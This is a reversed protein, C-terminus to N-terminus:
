GFVIALVAVIGVIAVGGIVSMLLTAVSKGALLDDEMLKQRGNRGFYKELVSFRNQGAPHSDSRHAHRTSAATNM